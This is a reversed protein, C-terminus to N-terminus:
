DGSLLICINFKLKKQVNNKLVLSNIKKIFGKRNILKKIQDFM